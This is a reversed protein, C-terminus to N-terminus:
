EMSEKLTLHNHIACISHFGHIRFCMNIKLVVCMILQQNIEPCKAWIIGV